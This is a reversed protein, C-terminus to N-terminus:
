ESINRSMLWAAFSGIILLIAGVVILWYLFDSAHAMIKKKSLEVAVLWKSNTIPRLSGIVPSDKARSYETISNKNQKDVLPSSVPRIMDTWLTGDANGIYLKAGAGM